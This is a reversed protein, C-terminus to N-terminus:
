IAERFLDPYKREFIEGSPGMNPRAAIFVRTKRRGLRRALGRSLRVNSTGGFELAELAEGSEGRKPGPGVRLLRRKADYEWFISKAGVASSKVHTRPPQGPSSKKKTRRIRRRAIGRVLGGSRRFIRASAKEEAELIELTKDVVVRFSTTIVGPM